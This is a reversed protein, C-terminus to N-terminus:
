DQMSSIFKQYVEKWGTFGKDTGLFNNHWITIMTGNVSKIRHYYQMLEEFATEASFKQEYYSNADM